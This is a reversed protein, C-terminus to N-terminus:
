DERKWSKFVYFCFSIKHIFLKTHMCKNNTKRRLFFLLIGKHILSHLPFFSMFRIFTFVSDVLSFKFIFFFSFVMSIFDFSHSYVFPCPSFFVVLSYAIDGSFECLTLISCTYLEQTHKTYSHSNIHTPIAHSYHVYWCFASREFRKHRLRHLFWM